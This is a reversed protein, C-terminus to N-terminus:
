PVGRLRFDFELSFHTLTPDVGVVKYGLEESVWM